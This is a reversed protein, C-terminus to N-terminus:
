REHRPSEGTHGLVCLMSNMSWIIDIGHTRHNVALRSVQIFYRGSAAIRLPRNDSMKTVDDLM